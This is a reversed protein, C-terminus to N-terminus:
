GPRAQVGFGPSLLAPAPRVERLLLTRRQSGFEWVLQRDDSLAVGGAAGRSGHTPPGAAAELQEQAHLRVHRVGCASPLATEVLM